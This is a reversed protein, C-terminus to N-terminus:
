FDTMKALIKQLAAPARVNKDAAVGSREVAGSIAVAGGGISLAASLFTRAGSQNRSRRGPSLAGQWLESIHPRAHGSDSMSEQRRACESKDSRDRQGSAEAQDKEKKVGALVSEIWAANEM